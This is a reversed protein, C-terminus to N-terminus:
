FKLDYRVTFVIWRSHLFSGTLATSSLLGHKSHFESSVWVYVTSPLRLATQTNCNATYMTVV